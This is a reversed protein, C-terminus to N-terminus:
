RAHHRTIFIHDYGGSRSCARGTRERDRPGPERGAGSARDARGDGAAVEAQSAFATFGIEAVEADPCGSALEDDFVAACGTLVTTLALAKVQDPM